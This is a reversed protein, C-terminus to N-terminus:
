SSTFVNEAASSNTFIVEDSREVPTLPYSDFNAQPQAYAQVEFYNTNKCNLSDRLEAVILYKGPKQFCHTIEKGSINENNIKWSLSDLRTASRLIFNYDSCFPTCSETLGRLSGFPLPDIILNKSISSFCGYNNKVTLTYSGSFLTNSAKFDPNPLTSTFGMPGKWQYADGGSAMLTVSSGLCARPSLTMEPIPLPHLFLNALASASCSNAGTVTLTYMGASTTTTPALWFNQTASTFGFPGSWNYIGGGYGSLTAADGVCVTAGIASPSPLSKITVSTTASATCGNQASVTISYIGAHSLSSTTIAVTPQSDTFGNPGLWTYSGAGSSANLVFSHQLCAPSTNYALVTPTSLVVLPMTAISTCSSIGAIITYNGSAAFSINTITPNPSTSVFNNPGTVTYTTGGMTSFTTTAGQCIPASVSLSASPSSVTVALTTTIYGTCGSSISATIIGSTANCTTSIINTTSTGTWGNPISWTYSANSIPALSYTNTTGPCVANNGIIPPPCTQYLQQIESPSLPRDYLFFDDLDGQWGGGNSGAQRGLRIPFWTGTNVATSSFTAGCTITPILNGDVYFDVSGYATSATADYVAVIHHWQNDTICSIDRGM